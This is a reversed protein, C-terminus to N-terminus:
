LLRRLAQEVHRRATALKGVQLRGGAPAEPIAPIACAQLTGRERALWRCLHEFRQAVIADRESSGPKLMEFNHSVVVFHRHGANYAMDMAQQLEALSCAGVQAHRDRGFGDRFIAVPLEVVAECEFPQSLDIRQERLDSGSYDLTTNFSSDLRIGHAALARLTDRNAAFSGARFVTAREAGAEILRQLSWGILATQEELTYYHLHQRKRRANAIPPADMEDTWEPHLHLQVSQGASRILGVIEALPAIGFRGSFMPDVFFTATIGYRNLIELTKPLAWDGAPSRGYVYRQFAAPFRTDLDAWDDCWVETDFTLHVQMPGSEAM